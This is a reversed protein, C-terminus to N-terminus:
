AAAGKATEPHRRWRLRSMPSGMPVHHGKGPEPDRWRASLMTFVPIASGGTTTAQRIAMRRHRLPM